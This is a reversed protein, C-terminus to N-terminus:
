PAYVHRLNAPPAPHELPTLHRGGLTAAEEGLHNIGASARDSAHGGISTPTIMM